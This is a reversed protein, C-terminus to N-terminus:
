LIVMPCRSFALMPFNFVQNILKHGVNSSSAVHNHILSCTFEGSVNYHGLCSMVSTRDVAILLSITTIDPAVAIAVIIMIISKADISTVNLLLPCFSCKLKQFM